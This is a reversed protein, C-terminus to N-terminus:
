PVPAFGSLALTVPSVTRPSRTYRAFLPSCSQIRLRNSCNVSCCRAICPPQPPSIDHDCNDTTQVTCLISHSNGEVHLYHVGTEHSDPRAIRHSQIPRRHFVAPSPSIVSNKAPSAPRSITRTPAFGPRTPPHLAVRRTSALILSLSFFLPANGYM